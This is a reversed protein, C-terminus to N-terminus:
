TVRSLAATTGNTMVAIMALMPLRRLTVLAALSATDVRSHNARVARMATSMPSTRPTTMWGPLWASAAESLVEAGSECPLQIPNRVPSTGTFKRPRSTLVAASSAPPRLESTSKLMRWSMMTEPAMPMAATLTPLAASGKRSNVSAARVTTWFTTHHITRMAGIPVRPRIPM